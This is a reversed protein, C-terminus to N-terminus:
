EDDPHREVIHSDIIKSAQEDPHAPPFGQYHVTFSSKFRRVLWARYSRRCTPLLLSLGLADTLVGPTLLLAGAVLIMVADLLSDAPVRGQALDNRIRWYTRLGQTRALWIGVAGTLLVLLLTREWSIWEALVLLLALEVLPVVVFLFFLRALV